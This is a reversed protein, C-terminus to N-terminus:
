GDDSEGVLPTDESVGAAGIVACEFMAEIHGAGWFAGDATTFPVVIFYNHDGEDKQLWDRLTIARRETM